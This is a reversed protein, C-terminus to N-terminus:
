RCDRLRRALWLALPGYDPCAGLQAAAVSEHMHWGGRPGVEVQLLGCLDPVDHRNIMGVPAVFYFQTALEMAAGRKEPKALESKWDQVDVKIEYAIVSRPGHYGEGWTDIALSDIRRSGQTVEELVLWRQGFQKERQSRPRHRWRIAKVCDMATLSLDDPRADLREMRQAMNQEKCEAITLACREIGRTHRKGCIHPGKARCGSKPPEKLAGFCWRCTDADMM